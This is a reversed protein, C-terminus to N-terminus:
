EITGTEAVQRIYKRAADIGGADLLRSVNIPLDIFWGSPYNQNTRPKKGLAAFEADILEQAETSPTCYGSGGHNIRLGCRKCKSIVKHVAYYADTKIEYEITESWLHVCDIHKCKKCFRFAGYGKEGIDDFSVSWWNEADRREWQLSANVFDHNLCLKRQNINYIVAESKEDYLGEVSKITVIDATSM